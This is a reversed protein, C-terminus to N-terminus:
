HHYRDTIDNFCTLLPENNKIILNYFNNKNISDVDKKLSYIKTPFINNDFVTDSLMKLKNFKTLTIKGKRISNLINQFDIDDKQRIIETLQINTLNLKNWIESKFCYDGTVPPLQYFDGILILRINGFPKNTNKIKSLLKSIKLFYMM